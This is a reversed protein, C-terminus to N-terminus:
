EERFLYDSNSFFLLGYYDSYVNGWREVYPDVRLVGNSPSSPLWPRSVDQELLTKRVTETNLYNYDVVYRYPNEITEPYWGGLAAENENNGSWIVISPHYMLRRVQHKVEERITSLFQDDRPYMACAFMFEEWVMLGNRDCFQYFYDHQYIGGGWNRVINM